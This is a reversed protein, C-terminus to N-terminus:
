GVDEDRDITVTAGSDLAVDLATLTRVVGVGADADTASKTGRTVAAVFDELELRLPQETACGAVAVMGSGRDICVPTPALDDFVVAAASGIVGTWRRKLSSRWSVHINGLVANPYRLVIQAEEVVGQANRLGMAQAALPPRGAWANFVALDHVGLDWIVNVDCSQPPSSTRLAYMSTLQGLEQSRILEHILQVGPQHVCLHGVHLVRGEAKATRALLGAGNLDAALPKEVLAHRGSRLIEVALSVHSSPPTAVVVAQIAPEELLEELTAVVRVKDDLRTVKERATADGDCVAVLRCSTMGLLTRVHNYGWRGSGVVAVGLTM